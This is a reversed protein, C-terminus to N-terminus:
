RGGSQHRHKEKMMACEGGEKGRGGEHVSARVKTKLTEECVCM